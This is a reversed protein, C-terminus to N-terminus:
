LQDYPNSPVQWINQQERPYVFPPPTLQSCFPETQEQNVIRASRRQAETPLHINILRTQATVCSM